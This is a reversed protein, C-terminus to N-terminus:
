VINQLGPTCGHESYTGSKVNWDPLCVQMFQYVRKRDLHQLFSNLFEELEMINIAKSSELRGMTGSENRPKPTKAASLKSSFIGM